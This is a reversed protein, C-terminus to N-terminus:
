VQQCEMTRIEPVLQSGNGLDSAPNRLTRFINQSAAELSRMTSTALSGLDAIETFGPDLKNSLAFQAFLGSAIILLIADDPQGAGTMM